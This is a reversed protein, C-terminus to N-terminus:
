HNSQTKTNDPVCLPIWPRYGSPISLSPNGVNLHFSGRYNKGCFSDGVYTLTVAYAEQTAIATSVMTLMAFAM